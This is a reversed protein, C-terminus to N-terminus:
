EVRLATNSSWSRAQLEIEKALAVHLQHGAKFATIHANPLRGGGLLALDGLLDLLKHRAPENDFRLPSAEGEPTSNLWCHEDCVLANDLSGGQILNRARLVELQEALAFTRAPAVEAAFSASLADDDGPESMMAPPPWSAWQRGIPAHGPFDIGVTLRPSHAPVAVIWSQGDGVRVTSELTALQMTRTSSSSSSPICGASSQRAAASVVGASRIAGVWPAASGDLIPLEPADVEVRCSAVGMGCLAAMLHEITGVSISGKTGITTSLVTSSVNDVTAQIVADSGVDVRVFQIGMHAPAPVLRVTSTRGSHLAVGSLSAEAALTNLCRRLRLARRM